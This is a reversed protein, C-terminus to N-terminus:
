TRWSASVARPFLICGSGDTRTLGIDRSHLKKKWVTEMSIIEDSTAASGAVELVSVIWDAPDRAKLAVNGGLNTAVYDRWRGLFGDNGSASGVYHERTKPCALLYVGKTASLVAKWAPPMTEIESLSRILRAFGPFAEERFATTLQVVPKDRQQALQVWSRASAGWDISIRGIYESLQAAPVCDYRDYHTWGKDGGIVRGHFADIDGIPVTKALTVTYLGVFLTSRDPPAVFSAWYKGRFWSRRDPSQTSQYSEFGPLNDRWLSYPTRGDPERTQHRLLRVDAPDINEAKLVANFMIPM